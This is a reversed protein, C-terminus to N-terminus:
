RPNGKEFARIIESLVAKGLPLPVANAVQKLGNDLKGAFSWTDPFGHIRAYERVTMERHYLPHIYSKASDDLGATLSRCLGNWPARYRYSKNVAIGQPVTKIHEVTAPRHRRGIHNLHQRAQSDTVDPLDGLVDGITIFPKLELTTEFLTPQSPPEGHTPPPSSFREAISKSRFGIIFLRERISPAGFSSAKLISPKLIYGWDALRSMLDEYADGCMKKLNPVNEFLFANPKTEGILRSYEFILPAKDGIIGRKRGTSTFDDCPPGGMILDIKETGLTEHIITGTLDRSDAILHHHDVGPFHLPMNDIITQLFIPNSDTSFLRKVFGTSCAAIDLGGAGAFLSVVTMKYNEDFM